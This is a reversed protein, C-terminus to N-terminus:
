LYWAALVLAFFPSVQHSGSLDNVDAQNKLRPIWDVQGGCANDAAM